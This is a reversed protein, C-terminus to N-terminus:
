TITKFDIERATPTDTDKELLEPNDCYFQAYEHASLVVLHEAIKTEIQLLQNNSEETLQKAVRAVQLPKAQSLLDAILTRLVVTVDENHECNITLSVTPSEPLSESAASSTVGAVMFVLAFFSSLRM